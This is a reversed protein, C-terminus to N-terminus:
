SRFLRTHQTEHLMSALDSMMVCSGLDDLSCSMFAQALELIRSEFAACVILGDTQGLPIMRVGASVLNAVFAHLYAQVTHLLGIRAQRAALGVAVPYVLEPHPDFAPDPWVQRVARMFAKGQGLSEARLEATTQFARALEDLGAIDHGDFVTKIFIADNRPTGHELLDTLWAHLSVRDSVWGQDIAAELGHSYTYAGVPFAPSLWMMLRLLAVDTM